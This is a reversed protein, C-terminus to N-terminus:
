KEKSKKEKEYVRDGKRKLVSQGSRLAPINVFDRKKMNFEGFSWQIYYGHGLVCWHARKLVKKAWESLFSLDLEGQPTTKLLQPSQCIVGYFELKAIFKFYNRVREPSWDKWCVKEQYTWEKSFTGQLALVESAIYKLLRQNVNLNQDDFWLYCADKFEKEAKGTKLEDAKLLFLIDAAFKLVKYFYVIPFKKIEYLDGDTAM